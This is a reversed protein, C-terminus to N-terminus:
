ESRRTSVVSLTAGLALIADSRSYSELDDESEIHHAPHTYHELADILHTLRDRKSMTKRDKAALDRIRGIEQGNPKIGELAKRCSAVVDDYDGYYLHTKAKELAKWVSNREVPTGDHPLELLINSSFDLQKLVDIWSKQNVPMHIRDGAHSYGNGDYIEGFLHLTFNLDGGLRIKEIEEMQNPTVMLDMLFGAEQNYVGTTLVIANEAFSRGLLKLESGVFVNAQINSLRFATNPSGPMTYWLYFRLLYTGVARTGNISKGQFRVVLNGMGATISM